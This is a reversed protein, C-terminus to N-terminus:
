VIIGINRGGYYSMLGDEILELEENLTDIEAKTASYEASQTTNLNSAIGDISVGFSAIGPGIINRGWRELIGIATKKAVWAILEPRPYVDRNIGIDSSTIPLMGAIYSLGIMQPAYENQIVPPIGYLMTTMNLPLMASQAYGQQFLAPQIQVQGMRNSVKIWDDDYDFINQNNFYIKVDEVHIIPRQETRIYMYADFDNRYYDARDFKLRPRIVIDFKNEAESVYQTILSQYDSDEYTEGTESNTLDDVMGKLEFRVSDPTFGLSDLTIDQYNTGDPLLSLYNPNGYYNILSNNSQSDGKFYNNIESQTSM